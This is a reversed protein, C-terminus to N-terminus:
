DRVVADAVVRDVDGCGGLPADGDCVRGADQSRRRGVQGKGQDEGDPPADDGAIPGDALPAPRAAPGIRVEEAMVDAARSEPDDAEAPDSSRHSTARFRELHVHDM